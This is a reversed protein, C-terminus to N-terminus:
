WKFKFKEKQYKYAWINNIQPQSYLLIRRSQCVHLQITLARGCNQWNKQCNIDIIKPHVMIIFTLNQSGCFCLFSFMSCDSGENTGVWM